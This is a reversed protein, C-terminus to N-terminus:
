LGRTGPTILWRATTVETPSPGPFQDSVWRTDIRSSPPVSTTVPGVVTSGPSWSTNLRRGIPMRREPDLSVHNPHNRM